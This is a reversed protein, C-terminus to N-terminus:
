NLSSMANDCVSQLELLISLTDLLPRKEGGGRDNEQIFTKSLQQRCDWIAGILFSMICSIKTHTESSVWTM